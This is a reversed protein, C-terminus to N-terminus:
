RRGVPEAFALRAYLPPVPRRPSLSEGKAGLAQDLRGTVAEGFRAALPGRPLDLLDGIRRLGVRSLGETVAGDLRLGAVPLPALAQRSKGPPVMIFPASTGFCARKTGFRAVAWAAGPTDAAAVLTRFGLGDLRTTLEELLAREGGLLHACGSIDLWLSCGRSSPFGDMATWPTYQRCWDALGALARADGEPDAAVTLLGPVRAKADALASGANLGARRAPGNAATIGLGGHAAAFTVLPATGDHAPPDARGGSAAAKQWRKELLDTSFTPLWLSVVRREM